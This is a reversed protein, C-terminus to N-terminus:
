DMTSGRAVASDDIDMVLLHLADMQRVDGLIDLLRHSCGGAVGGVIFGSGLDSGM